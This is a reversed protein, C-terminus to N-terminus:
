NPWSPTTTSTPFGFRVEGDPVVDLLYLGAEPPIDGPKILGRIGSAGSKAYAGLSKEEITTSAERRTAWRSVATAWPRTIARRGKWRACSKRGLEPTVARAAM